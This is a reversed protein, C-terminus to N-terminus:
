IGVLPKVCQMVSRFAMDIEAAFKGKKETPM